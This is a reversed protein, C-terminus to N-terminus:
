GLRNSIRRHLGTFAREFVRAPLAKAGRLMGERQFFTQAGAVAMSRTAVRSAFAARSQRTVGYRALATAPNTRIANRLVWVDELAQNAGLAMSPPMAHAADGLLIARGRGWRIPHRHHPYARVDVESLAKLLEPVPTGWHGYRETLLGVPDEEDAPWPTDCFWQALGNGAPSLGMYGERGMMILATQGLDVPSPILGQWSAVGTVPRPAAGYLATRVASGVGDAGILLDTEFIEGFETVVTDGDGLSAFRSGFRVLGDPLGRAIAKLLDARPIVVAGSGLRADADGLDISMAERGSTTLTSIGTLREGLGGIDVGLDDLITTGNAWLTIAGGLTRLEPARELVTVEHGDALLGRAAATGGIGAGVIVIRM